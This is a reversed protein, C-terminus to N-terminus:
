RGSPPYRGTSGRRPLPPATRGGPPRRELLRRQRALSKYRAIGKGDKRARAIQLSLMLKDGPPTEPRGVCAGSAGPSGDSAGPVATLLFAALLVLIKPSRLTKRVPRV